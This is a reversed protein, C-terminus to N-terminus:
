TANLLTTEGVAVEIDTVIGALRKAVAPFAEIKTREDPTRNSLDIENGPAVDGCPDGGSGVLVRRLRAGDARVFAGGPATGKM